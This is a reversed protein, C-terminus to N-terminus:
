AQRTFDLAEKKLGLCLRLSDLILAQDFNYNDAVLTAAEKYLDVAEEFKEQEQKCWAM